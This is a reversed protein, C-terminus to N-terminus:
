VANWIIICITHKESKGLYDICIVTLIINLDDVTLTYNVNEQVFRGIIVTNKEVFFFGLICQELNNHM